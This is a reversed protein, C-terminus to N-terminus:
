QLHQRVRGLEMLLAIKEHQDECLDVELPMLAAVAHWEGRDAHATRAAALLSQVQPLEAGAAAIEGDVTAGNALTERLTSWAHDSEADQQLLGLASRIAELDM